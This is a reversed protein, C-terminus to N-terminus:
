TLLIAYNKDKDLGNAKLLSSFSETPTKTYIDWDTDTNTYDMWLDTIGKDVIKGADEESIGKSVCLFTYQGASLEIHRHDFSNAAGKRYYYLWNPTDYGFSFREADEPVEVFLFKGKQTSIEKMRSEM